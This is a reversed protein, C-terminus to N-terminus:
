STINQKQLRVSKAWWIRWRSVESSYVGTERMDLASRKFGAKTPPLRNVHIFFHAKVLKGIIIQTPWREQIKPILM